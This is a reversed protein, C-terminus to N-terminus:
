LSTKYSELGPQEVISDESFGPPKYFGFIYFESGNWLVVSVAPKIFDRFFKKIM